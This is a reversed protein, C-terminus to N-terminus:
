MSRTAAPPAAAAAAPKRPTNARIGSQNAPPAEIKKVLERFSGDSKVVINDEFILEDIVSPNAHVTFTQFDGRLPAEDFGILKNRRFAVKKQRGAVYLIPSTNPADPGPPPGNYIVVNDNFEIIERSTEEGQSATLGTNVGFAHHNTGTLIYVCREVVSRGSEPNPNPVPGGKNAYLGGAAPTSVDGHFICDHVWVNALRGNGNGFSCAKGGKTRCHGIEVNWVGFTYSGINFGGWMPADDFMRVLPDNDVECYLARTGHAGLEFGQGCNRAKCRLYLGDVSHSNFGALPLGYFANGFGCSVATCDVIKAGRYVGHVVLGEHPSGIWTCNEATFDDGSVEICQMQGRDRLGSCEFTLGRFTVGSVASKGYRGVRVVDADQNNAVLKVTAPRGAAAALTVRKKIELTAHIPWVGAPLTVTTGEPLSDIFTQLAGHNDGAATLPASEVDVDQVVVVEKSVKATAKGEGSEQPLATAAAAFWVTAALRLAHM